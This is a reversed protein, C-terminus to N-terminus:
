CTAAATARGTVAAVGIPVSLALYGTTLYDYINHIAYPEVSSRM